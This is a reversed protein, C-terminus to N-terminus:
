DAAVFNAPPFLAGNESFDSFFSPALVQRSL